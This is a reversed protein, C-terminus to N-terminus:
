AATGTFSKPLPAYRRVIRSHMEKARCGCSTSHGNRLFKGQVHRVTGCDCKCVWYPSRTGMKKESKRIVTWRGHKAGTMDILESM